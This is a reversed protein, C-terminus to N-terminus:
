VRRDGEKKYDGYIEIMEDSLQGNKEVFLPPLVRMGSKGGLRGELLILWPEAGERQSVTRLVKPEIGGNKFATILDALREPRQCICLRGSFRLLKRAASVVDEATCLTEHRAIRAAARPNVIGAGPAKYPPNCTVLDFQGFPLKGKLSRLDAHLPTIRDGVANDEVTKAFMEAADSQIEVGYGRKVAANKVWLMPIIGCGTGLDAATEARVREGFNELLIADTGFRHADSVYIFHNDGLPERRIM